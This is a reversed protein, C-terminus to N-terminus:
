ITKNLNFIGSPLFILQNLVFNFYLYLLLCLCAQADLVSWWTNWLSYKLIILQKTNCVVSISISPSVIGIENEGSLKTRMTREIETLKNGIKWIIFVLSMGDALCTTERWVKFMFILIRDLHNRYQATPDTHSTLASSTPGLITYYAIHM